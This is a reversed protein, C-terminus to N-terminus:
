LAVCTVCLESHDETFAARLQCLNGRSAVSDESSSLFSSLFGQSSMKCAAGVDTIGASHNDRVAALRRPSQLVHTEPSPPAERENLAARRCGEKTQESRHEQACLWEKRVLRDMREENAGRGRRMLM